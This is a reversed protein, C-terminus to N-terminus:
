PAVTPYVLGDLETVLVADELDVTGAFLTIDGSGITLLSDEKSTFTVTVESGPVTPMAPLVLDEIIQADFQVGYKVNFAELITAADYNDPDIEIRGDQTAIIAAMDLRNYFVTVEGGFRSQGDAHPTILLSTNRGNVSAATPAGFATESALMNLGPNAENILDLIIQPAPQLYNSM